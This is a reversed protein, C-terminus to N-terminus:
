TTTVTKALPHGGATSNDHVVATEKDTDITIEGEPGTYGSHESTSGRKLKLSKAM